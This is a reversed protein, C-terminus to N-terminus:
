GNIAVKERISYPITMGCRPTDSYVSHWLGDPIFVVDGPNMTIIEADKQSENKRFEWTTVGIVQWHLNDSPDPHSPVKPRGAIFDLYVGGGPSISNFVENFFSSVIKYKNHFSADRIQAYAMERNFAVGGHVIYGDGFSLKPERTYEHTMHSFIEDWSPTDNFLKEFLIPSNTKRANNIKNRVHEIDM